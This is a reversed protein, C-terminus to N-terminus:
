EGENEEAIEEARTYNKRDKGLYKVVVTDKLEKGNKGLAPVVEVSVGIGLKAAASRLLSVIEAADGQLRTTPEGARDGRKITDDIWWGKVVLEYDQGDDYSQQLWGEDLFPNPGATRTGRRRSMGSGPTPALAGLDM